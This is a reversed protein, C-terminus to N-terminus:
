DERRRAVAGLLAVALGLGGAMGGMASCGSAKGDAKGNGEEVDEVAATDVGGGTDAMGDEDGGEPEPEPEPEAEEGIYDIFWDYDVDVRSVGAVANPDDCLVERSGDAMTGFSNVGVLELVGSEDDPRLAAGGSDGSCINAGGGTAWTYIVGTDVYYIPVDVTRKTGAGGGSDNSNGWGVYTIDSRVWSSQARDSNLPIKEVNPLGVGELEMVAVDHDVGRYSPHGVMRSVMAYDDVGAASQVSTGVVFMIDFGYRTYEEAGDVCHAATILWNDRVLTGSCFPAAGYRDNVALLQGVAGFDSTTSGGIIADDAQATIGLLATLVLVASM